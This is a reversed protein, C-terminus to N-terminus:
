IWNRPLRSFGVRFGLYRVWCSIWCPFGFIDALEQLHCHVSFHDSISMIMVNDIRIFKASSDGLGMSPVLPELSQIEHLQRIASCRRFTSRLRARCSFAELRTESFDAFASRDIRISPPNGHFPQFDDGMNHPQCISTPKTFNGGHQIFLAYSIYFSVHALWLLIAYYWMISDNHDEAAVPLAM